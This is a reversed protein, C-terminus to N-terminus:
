LFLEAYGLQGPLMGYISRFVERDANAQNQIKDREENQALRLTSSREHYFPICAKMMKVGARHARIHYDCDSAYLSMREDFFGIKEWAERRILFASFDPHADASKHKPPEAIQEMRDVAIGTVFPYQYSLLQSYFWIPLVTDNGIVLVHDIELFFFLNRMGQNWGKSVGANDVNGIFWIEAQEKEALWDVTGDTSGNDVIMIRTPIDQNRVSAVCRKTLELCNHTLILVPNM